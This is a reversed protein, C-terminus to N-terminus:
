PLEPSSISSKTMRGTGKHLNVRNATYFEGCQSNESSVFTGLVYFLLRLYNKAQEYSMSVLLGTEM